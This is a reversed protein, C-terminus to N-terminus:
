RILTVDGKLIQRTGDFLEIETWYAFVGPNCKQGKLTGDWGNNPDNPLYDKAEYVKEGWRDYIQFSLIRKIEKDNTSIFVKDNNGDGNPTFINPIFINVGKKVIIKKSDKDSCGNKDKVEVTYVTTQNPYVTIHFCGTCNIFDYDSSYTISGVQDEPISIDPKIIVTDGINILTDNGIEVTVLPPEILVINDLTLECGNADKIKIVNTSGSLNSWSNISSYPGGNFSYLIPPAGGEIKTIKVYGNKYGYCTPGDREIEIGKPRAPDSTIVVTDRDFCGTKSDTVTLIYTGDISVDMGSANPQPIPQNNIETWQYIINNGGSSKGGITAKAIECTLEQDFGADAIPNEFITVKVESASAPCSGGNAFRYQFVYDGAKLDKVKLIGGIFATGATNPGVETWNGGPDENSIHDTLDIIDSTGECYTIVSEENGAFKYDDIVLPVFVTDPCGPKVNDVTLRLVYTGADKKNINVTNGSILVPNNGAPKSKISWTGSFGNPITLVIDSGSNCAAPIPGLVPLDPCECNDVVNITITQPINACPPPAGDPIFTFTYTGVPVNNFSWINGTQIAGSGDTDVWKGSVPASQWIASSSFDLKDADESKPDKNCVTANDQLKYVLQPVIVVDVTVTSDCNEPPTIDIEFEFTYTGVAKGSPNFIGNSVPVSVQGSPDNVLNWKGAEASVILTNLDITNQDDSCITTVPTLVTLEPCNCNETVTVLVTVSKNQCPAVASTSTFVFAYSGVPVGTFDWINGSINNGVNDNNVWNGPVPNSTFFDNLNVMTKPSPPQPVNNCVKIEPKMTYVVEPNVTITLDIYKPCITNTPEPDLTYRIIYNGPDKGTADFITGTLTGTNSGGPVSFLTWGGPGANVIYSNIDVQANDNCLDGPKSFLLKPCDCDDDVTITLTDRSDNCPLSGPVVYEFQVITGDAIGTFDYKNGGLDVAGSLPPIEKWSGTADGGTFFDNLNLRSKGDNGPDANCVVATNIITAEPQKNIILVDDVSGSCGDVTVSYSIAYIGPPISNIPVEGTPLIPYSWTGGPIDTTLIPNPTETNCYTSLNLIYPTPNPKVEITTSTQKTCTGTGVIYDITYLGPGLSSPFFLGDSSVGGSWTGGSPNGVLQYPGSESACFPGAPTITPDDIQLVSIQISDRSKCGTTPDTYAAVVWYPTNPTMQDVLITGDPLIFGDPHTSYIVGQSSSPDTLLVFSELPCLPADPKNLFNIKPTPHIKINLTGIGKCGYKDTVQLTVQFNGAQTANIPITATNFTGWPTTWEYTFPGNQSNVTSTLTKGTLDNLCYEAPNPLITVQLSGTVSVLVEDVGICGNADTVTVTYTTNITPSVEINETTEGTSWLITYPAGAGGSATPNGGLTVTAGPCSTKDPGANANVKPFVLVNLTQPQGVCGTPSIPTVSYVVTKSSGTNNTLTQSFTSGSGSTAGTVGNANTVTWEITSNPPDLTINAFFTEGSCIQGDQLTMTPETCCQVTIKKTLITHGNCSSSQWGGTQGDSFATIAVTYDNCSQDSCATCPIKVTFQVSFPGSAPDGYSLNPVSSSCTGSYTPGIWGAPMSTGTWSCNGGGVFAQCNPTGIICINGTGPNIGVAGASNDLSKWHVTAAPYWGWTASGTPRVSPVPEAGQQYDFCNSIVPFMSHIWQSGIKIFNTTYKFTVEECKKFPGTLPSGMNAGVITLSQSTICPATINLLTICLQFNGENGDADTVAIYYTTNPIVSANVPNCEVWTNCSNFLAYIPSTLDTSTFNIVATNNNGSNFSYWAVPHDMNACAGGGNLLPGNPMGVNCGTVCVPTAANPIDIEIASSCDGNTNCPPQGEHETICLNQFDGAGATTSTIMIYITSGPTLNNFTYSSVPPGCYYSGNAALTPPNTCGNPFDLLAIGMTGTIGNNDIDIDIKNTNPGLNYSYFIANQSQNPCGPNQYDPDAGVTTGNVCGNQPISIATCPDDNPPPVPNNICIQISDKPSILVNVIIFYTTGPTLSNVNINTGCGYEQAGTTNACGNPFYALTAIVKNSTPKVTISAQPGQATFTFWINPNAGPVCSGNALDYTCTDFQFVQCTGDLLTIDIADACDDNAPPQAWIPQIFTLLIITSLFAHIVIKM